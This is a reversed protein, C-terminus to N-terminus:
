FVIHSFYSAGREGGCASVCLCVSVSVSVSVCVCVCVSLCLCVCLRVGVVSLKGVAAPGLRPRLYFLSNPHYRTAPMTTVSAPPTQIQFHPASVTQSGRHGPPTQRLAPLLPGSVASGCGTRLVPWAPWTPWAPWAPYQNGEQCGRATETVAEREEVGPFVAGVKQRM